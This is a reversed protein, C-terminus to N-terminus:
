GSHPMWVSGSMATQSSTNCVRLAMWSSVICAPIVIFFFEEFSRGQFTPLTRTTAIL